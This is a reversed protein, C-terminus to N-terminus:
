ATGDGLFGQGLQELGPVSVNLRRQRFIEFLWAGFRAASVPQYAPPLIPSGVADPDERWAAGSDMSLPPSSGYGSLFERTSAPPEDFVARLAANGGQKWARHVSAGGFAYPFYRWAMAYASSSQTVQQWSRDQFDDYVEEWDIDWPQYGFGIATAREEYLEAEGEFVASRALGGDDDGLAPDAPQARQYQM